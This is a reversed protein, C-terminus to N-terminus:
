PIRYGHEMASRIIGSAVYDNITIVATPMDALALIQNMGFYGSEYDYSGAVVYEERYSIGHKELLEEYRQRKRYTGLVNYRGGVLAIREHGLGFLYDMLFDTAKDFDIQVEYCETGDLKGTVILPVSPMIQAVKGVYEPYSAVADVSGGLQIIAAVRQQRMMDLHQIEREMSGFANSLLVTYGQERAANECAVFVEAYYSNRVDAAIIGIVKSQTDSLGKALANPKFNYKAILGQVKEKKAKSVNANNTLVRSVTAPSVGAEKAIDYFRQDTNKQMDDIKQSISSISETLEKQILLSQRRDHLRNEMLQKIEAQNERIAKLLEERTKRRDYLKDIFERITKQNKLIYWFLLCVSAAAATLIGPDPATFYEAFLDTM